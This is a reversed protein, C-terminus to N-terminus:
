RILWAPPADAWRVGFLVRKIRAGWKSRATWRPVQYRGNWLFRIGGRAITIDPLELLPADPVDCFEYVQVLPAVWGSEATLITM